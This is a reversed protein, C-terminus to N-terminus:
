WSTSFLDIHEPNQTNLLTSAIVEKLVKRPNSSATTEVRVVGTEFNISSRAKFDSAYKVYEYKSAVKANEGWYPRAKKRVYNKRKNYKSVSAKITKNKNVPTYPIAEVTPPTYLTTKKCDCNCPVRTSCGFFFLTTVLLIFIRM